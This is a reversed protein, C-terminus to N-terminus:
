RNGAGPSPADYITAGFENLDVEHFIINARRVQESCVIAYGQRTLEEAERRDLLYVYRHEGHAILDPHLVAVLAHQGGVVFAIRGPLREAQSVFNETEAIQRFRREHDALIAGPGIRDPRVDVFSAVILCAGFVWLSWPPAWQQALLILFVAAPILYGAQHPIAVFVALSVVVGITWAMTHDRSVTEGRQRWFAAALVLVVLGVCGLVGLFGTTANQLGYQWPEEHPYARLFEWGYRHVVPVFALAAVVLACSAFKALSRLQDRNESQGRVLLLALPIALVISAPRFGTAVGLLVGGWWANRQEVLCMSAMVCALAPLYDKATVSNVYVAPVFALMQACWWAQRANVLKLYRYLLLVAAITALASLGNLARAGGRYLLAASYEHLPYGPFRSVSYQGTEAIARGMWAVRWADLNVGYGPELFPWRSAGVIVILAFIPLARNWFGGSAAREPNSANM